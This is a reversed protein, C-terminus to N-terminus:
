TPDQAIVPLAQSSSAKPEPYADIEMATDLTLGNMLEPGANSPPPTGLNEDLM